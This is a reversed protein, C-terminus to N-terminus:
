ERRIVELIRAAVTALEERTVPDRPRFSGDPDGTMIGADLCQRISTESWRGAFDTISGYDPRWVAVVHDHRRLKEMVIGGNDQSGYASTNGEVTYISSPTSDKFVLGLHEPDHGRTFNLFVVDGRSVTEVGVLQKKERAWRLLESCSATKRGGYFLKSLDAQVFLWWIFQVCWPVGNWGYAEGYKQRNSDEPYERTGIEARAVACIKDVQWM